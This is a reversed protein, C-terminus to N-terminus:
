FFEFAFQWATFEELFRVFSNMKVVILCGTYECLLLTHELAFSSLRGKEIKKLMIVIVAIYM